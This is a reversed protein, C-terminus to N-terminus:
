GSGTASDYGADGPLLIRVGYSTIALQPRITPVEVVASAELLDSTRNFRSIAEINSMTPLLIDIEGEEGRRMAEAPAIWISDVVEVDDHAAEQDVPAAAVFFRTDYRRPEGEPTVWHSFYFLHDTDLFLEVEELFQSFSLDGANLRHRYEVLRDRSVAKSAGVPAGGGDSALLIGAEEFSERIAAVFFALGGAPLGLIRSAEEDSRRPSRVITAPSGDETDVAGGPFLHAGAVWGSAANRRLLLVEIGSPADRVLMITSAARPVITQVKAAEGPDNM